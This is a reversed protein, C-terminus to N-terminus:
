IPSLFPHYFHNAVATAFLNGVGASEAVIAACIVILFNARVAAM